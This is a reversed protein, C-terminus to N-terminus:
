IELKSNLKLTNNGRVCVYKRSDSKNKASVFSLRDHICAINWEFAGWILLKISKMVDILVELKLVEIVLIIISGNPTFLRFKDFKKSYKLVYRTEFCTTKYRWNTIVSRLNHM